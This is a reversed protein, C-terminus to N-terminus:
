SKSRGILAAIAAVAPCCIFPGLVPPWLGQSLLFIFLGFLSGLISYVVPRVNKLGTSGALGLILLVGFATGIMFAPFLM